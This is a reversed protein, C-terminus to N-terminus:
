ILNFIEMEGFSIYIGLYGMLNEKTDKGLFFIESFFILKKELM